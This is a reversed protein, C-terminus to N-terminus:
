RAFVAIGLRKSTIQATVRSGDPPATVFFEDAARNEGIHNSTCFLRLEYHGCFDEACCFLTPSKLDHLLIRRREGNTVYCLGIGGSAPADFGEEIFFAPEKQLIGVRVM